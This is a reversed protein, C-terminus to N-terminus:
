NYPSMCQRRPGNIPKYTNDSARYTTYANFCWNTHQQGLGASPAPNPSPSPNSGYSKPPAGNQGTMAGVLLNALAGYLAMKDMKKNLKGCSELDKNRAATANIAQNSNNGAMCWTHHASYNSDWGIGNFGCNMQIAKDNQNVSTSAYDNCLQQKNNSGGSGGSGGTCKHDLDHRRAESALFIIDVNTGSNMCWDFHAKHSTSWRAPDAQSFGCNRSRDEQGHAAGTTAYYNCFEKKRTKACNKLEAWRSDTEKTMGNGSVFMCFSYHAARDGSWKAPDKSSIGCGWTAELNSQKVATDAYVNCQDEVPGAFSTSGFLLTVATLLLCKTNNKM